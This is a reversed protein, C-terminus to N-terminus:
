NSTHTHLCYVCLCGWAITWMYFAVTSEIPFGNLKFSYLGKCKKLLVIELAELSLKFSHLELCAHQHSTLMLAFYVSIDILAIFRVDFIYM